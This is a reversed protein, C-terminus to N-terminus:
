GARETWDMAETGRRSTWKTMNDKWYKFQYAEQKGKDQLISKLDACNGVGNVM